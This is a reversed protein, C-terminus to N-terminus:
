AGVAEAGAGQQPKPPVPELEGKNEDLVRWGARRAVSSSPYISPGHTPQLSKPPPNTVDAAAAAAVCVGVCVYMIVPLRFM